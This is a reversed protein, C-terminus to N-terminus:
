PDPVVLVGLEVPAEAQGGKAIVMGPDLPGRDREPESAPGPLLVFHPKAVPTPRSDHLPTAIQRTALQELVDPVVALRVVDRRLVDVFVETSDRGADGRLVEPRPAPGHERESREARKAAGSGFALLLLVHNGGNPRGRAV